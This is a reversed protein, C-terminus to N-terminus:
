RMGTPTRKRSRGAVTIHKGTFPPAVDRIGVTLRVTLRRKARDLATANVSVCSKVSKPLGGVPIWFVCDSSACRSRASACFAKGVAPTSGVKAGYTAIAIRAGPVRNQTGPAPFRSATAKVQLFKITRAFNRTVHYHGSIRRMKRDPSPEPKCSRRSTSAAHEHLVQDVMGNRRHIAATSRSPQLCSQGDPFAGVVRTRRRIERM